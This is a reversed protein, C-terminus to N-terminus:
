PAKRTYGRLVGYREIQTPTLLEVMDIHHM